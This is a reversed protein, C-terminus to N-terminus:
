KGNSETVIKVIAARLRFFRSFLTLLFSEKQGSDIKGQTWVLWILSAPPVKKYYQYHIENALYIQEEFYEFTLAEDPRGPDLGERM